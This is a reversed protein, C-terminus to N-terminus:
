KIKAPSRGGRTAGCPSSAHQALFQRFGRVWRSLCDFSKPWVVLKAQNAQMKQMSTPTVDWRYKRAATAEIAQIVPLWTRWGSTVALPAKRFPLSRHALRLPLKAVHNSWPWTFPHNIYKKKNHGKKSAANQRLHFFNVAFDGSAFMM